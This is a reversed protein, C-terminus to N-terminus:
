DELIVSDANAGLEGLIETLAEMMPPPGCLYFRQSFDSVHQELFSRDIQGAALSSEPQDTVTFLCDLGTMSELQERMIIDRETKNSFILRNGALDGEAELNKFIALFPTIGAGGAIFVGPGKYTIAGWPEGILLHDGADLNGIQETVGDHDPYIKIVFELHPASTLSTFTFPREEERWGDKDIAVDTAQGPEFEYGDPKELILQRVDHTVDSTSIIKVSTTM